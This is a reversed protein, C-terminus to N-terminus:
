ILGAGLEALREVVPWGEGVDRAPHRSDPRSVVVCHSIGFERATHLVHLNDDVLLARGPQLAQRKAFLPWFRADEKPYGLDHTSFLHDFHAGLDTRELKLALSKPHANTVLWLQKGAARVAQLFDRAGELWAIHEAIEHKLAAVDMGLADSWYDICYWDLTGQTSDFIPALEAQAQAFSMARREAYRRPLHETWFHTDYALDLITGDMDLLVTDIRRWDLPLASQTIEDSM